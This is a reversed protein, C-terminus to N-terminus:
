HGNQSYKRTKVAKTHTRKVSMEKAKTHTLEQTRVQGKILLRTQHDGRNEDGVGSDQGRGRECDSPEEWLLQDGQKCLKNTTDVLLTM